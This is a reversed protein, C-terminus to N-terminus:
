TSSGLGNNLYDTIVKMWVQAKEISFQATFRVKVICNDVVGLALLESIGDSAEAQARLPLIQSADRMQYAHIDGLEAGRKSTITAIDRASQTFSEMATEPDIVQQQHDYLFVTLKSSADAFTVSYGLGPHDDEFRHEGVQNLDSLIQPTKEFLTTCSKLDAAAPSAFLVSTILFVRFM